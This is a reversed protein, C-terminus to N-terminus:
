GDVLQARGIVGDKGRFRGVWQAPMRTIFRNPMAALHLVAMPVNGGVWRSPSFKGSLM